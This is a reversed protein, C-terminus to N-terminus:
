EDRNSRAGTRVRERDQRRAAMAGAVSIEGVLLRYTRPPATFVHYTERIRIGDDTEVRRGLVPHLANTSALTNGPTATSV